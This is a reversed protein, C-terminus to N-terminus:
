LRQIDAINGLFRDVVEQTITSFSACVFLDVCTFVYGGQCFYYESILHDSLMKPM